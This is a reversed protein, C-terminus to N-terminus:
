PFVISLPLNCNLRPSFYPDHPRDTICGILLTIYLLFSIILMLNIGMGSILTPDLASSFLPTTLDHLLILTM